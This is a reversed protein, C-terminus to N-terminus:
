MERFLHVASFAWYRSCFLCVRIRAYMHVYMAPPPGTDASSPSGDDMAAGKRSLAVGATCTGTVPTGYGWGVAAPELLAASGCFARVAGSGADGSEDESVLEFSGPALLIRVGTSSANWRLLAHFGSASLNTPWQQYPYTPSSPNM